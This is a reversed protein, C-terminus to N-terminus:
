PSHAGHSGGSLEAFRDAAAVLCESMQRPASLFPSHDTELTFVPDCPLAAQMARQLSLPITRDQTCEVYARPLQTFNGASAPAPVMTAVPQPQLRAVAARATEPDTTNYFREMAVGPDCAVSRGDETPTMPPADEFRM